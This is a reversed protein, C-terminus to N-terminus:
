AASLSRMYADLDSRRVRRLRGIKVSPIAPNDGEILRRAGVPSIRLIEAVEHRTLMHERQTPQLETVTSSVKQVETLVIHTHV